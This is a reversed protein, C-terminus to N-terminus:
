TQRNEEKGKQLTLSENNTADVVNIRSTNVFWEDDDVGKFLGLSTREFDWDGNERRERGM